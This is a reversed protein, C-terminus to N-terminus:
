PLLGATTAVVDMKTILDRQRILRQLQALSEADSTQSMSTQLLVLELDRLVDALSNMGQEECTQRYLRTDSLLSTALTREYDWSQGSSDSPNKTALGLVVLKTRELHQESIQALASDAGTTQASPPEVSASTATQTQETADPASRHRMVTFVSMTVLAIAAALALAPAVRRSGFEVVRRRNSLPPAVPESRISTDLRLMFASWDGGPPAKVDPCSELASRIISLDELARRCEDCVALHQKIREREADALEDYFYLEIAPSQEIRCTTM